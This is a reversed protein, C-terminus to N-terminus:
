LVPITRCYEEGHDTFNIESSDSVCRASPRGESQILPFHSKRSPHQITENRQNAELRKQISVRVSIGLNAVGKKIFPVSLHIGAIM